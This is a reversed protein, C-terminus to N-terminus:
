FVMLSKGKLWRIAEEEDTFLKTPTSPRNFKIFFNVVLKHALSDTVFALSTRNKSLEKNAALERAEPSVNTYKGIIVLLSYKSGESLKQNAKYIEDIHHVEIDARDNLQLRIIGEYVSLKGVTIEYIDM